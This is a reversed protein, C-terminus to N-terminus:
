INGFKLEHVFDFLDKKWGSDPYKSKIQEVLASGVIFGDAHEAIKLADHHNKIGFGVLKPNRKVNKNVRSIFNQVSRAVENGDRTGTVGTVSVCYVFGESVEDIKIMRRDNTNPAVLFILNLENKSAEKHILGSEEVPLDPIILGDAGANAADKCFKVIDYRLVPNVYGMLIIPIQSKERVERVINFIKEMTIGNRIAVESSYQITPGDALPDSFPMGLEIMDAGNKELGLILEATSDPEPYGATLFLSMIKDHKKRKEFVTAIRNSVQTTM